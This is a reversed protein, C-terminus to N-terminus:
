DSVKVAAAVVKVREVGKRQKVVQSAAFQATPVDSSTVMVTERIVSGDTQYIDVLVSFKAV